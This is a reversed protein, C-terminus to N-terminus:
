NAVPTMTFIVSVLGSGFLFHMLTVVCAPPARKAEPRRRM